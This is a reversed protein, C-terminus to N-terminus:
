KIAVMRIGLLNRFPFSNALRRRRSFPLQELIWELTLGAWVPWLAAHARFEVQLRFQSFGVQRLLPELEGITYEKLHFGTAIEDFGQSIDHPGSLRNPTVCLYVGGPVLVRVIHQLQEEVDEPHLHEMLQNSYVVDISKDPLPLTVGDIQLNQLNAPMPEPTQSITHSVDCAFVQKVQRAIHRSLRGDGCGIEIFRSTPTLFPQLRNAQLELQAAFQAPSQKRLLQPHDSVKQFLENYLSIYLSRRQLADANRLRNALEKEILYHDQIRESIRPSTRSQSTHTPKM